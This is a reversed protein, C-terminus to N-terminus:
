KRAKKKKVINELIKKGSPAKPTHKDSVFWAPKLLKNLKQASTIGEKYISLVEAKTPVPKKELEKAKKLAEKVTKKMSLSLAPTTIFRKRQM